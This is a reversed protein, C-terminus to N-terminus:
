LTSSTSGYTMKQEMSLYSSEPRKNGFEIGRGSGFSMEEEREKKKMHTTYGISILMFLLYIFAAWYCNKAAEETDDPGRMYLPEADFLM